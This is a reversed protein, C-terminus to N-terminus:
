KIQYWISGDSQVWVSTQNAITTTSVAAPSLYASTNIAGGSNYNIICYERGPCTSATPLTITIGSTTVRVTHHTDNLTTNGTIATSLFPTAVAGTSIMGASVIKHAANISTDQVNTIHIPYLPASLISDGWMWKGNRMLTVTKRSTSIADVHTSFSFSSDVPIRMNISAQRSHLFFTNDTRSGLGMWLITDTSTATGVSRWAMVNDQTSVSTRDLFLKYNAGGIRTAGTIDLPFSPSAQKIGVNGSSFTNLLLNNGDIRATIYAASTRNYAAFTGASGNYGLEVGAGTIGGSYNGNVKIGGGSSQIQGTIRMNATQDSAIQNEIYRGQIDLIQAQLRGAMQPITNTPQIPLAPETLLPYIQSRWNITATDVYNKTTLQNSAIPDIGAVYTNFTALTDDLNMILSDNVRAQIPQVGTSTLALQRNYAALEFSNATGVDGLRGFVANVNDSFRLAFDGSGNQRITFADATTSHITVANTTSAGRDTVTQLNELGLDISTMIKRWGTSDRGYFFQDIPRWLIMGPAVMTADTIPTDKRPIFLAGPVRIGDGFQYLKSGQTIPPYSQAYVVFPFLFLIMLILRNM